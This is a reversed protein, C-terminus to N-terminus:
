KTPDAHNSPTRNAEAILFDTHALTAQRMEAYLRREVTQAAEARTMFYADAGDTRTRQVAGTPTIIDLWDKGTAVVEVPVIQSGKSATRWWQTVVRDHPAPQPLPANGQGLARSLQRTAQERMAPTKLDSLKM